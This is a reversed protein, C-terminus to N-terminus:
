EADPDIWINIDPDTPATSGLHVGSKGTPGPEGQIGPDGKPGQIGPEGQIGPDGKPGQIGPDGQPGKINVTQPNDLGGNNSWSLEGTSSVTPTYWVASTSGGGGSTAPLKVQATMETSEFVIDNTQSNAITQVLKIKSIHEVQSKLIDWVAYMTNAVLETPIRLFQTDDILVSWETQDMYVTSVKSIDFRVTNKLHNEFDILISDGLATADLEIMNVAISM